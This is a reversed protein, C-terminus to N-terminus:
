NTPCQKRGIIFAGTECLTINMTETFEYNLKYVKELGARSQNLNKSYPWRVKVSVIEEGAELGFHIGEENQPPLGGYSYEVMQRKYLFNGDRQTKLIVMGGLGHFNAKKGRLFFRV